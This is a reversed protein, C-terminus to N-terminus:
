SVEEEIEVSVSGGSPTSKVVRRTRRLMARAPLPRDVPIVQAPTEYRLLLELTTAAAARGSEDSLLLVSSRVGRVAARVIEACWDAANARANGGGTVVILTNNAGALSRSERLLTALSVSSRTVPALASLLRWVHAQGSEAHIQVLQAPDGSTCLLGVKRHHGAHLLQVAASAAATVAVELWASENADFNCDLVIWIDGAPEQERERVMLRGHHATAPWHVHRLADSPTRERVTAAPIAGLMSRRVRADSDAHGVPLDIEPLQVVRPYILVPETQPLSINLAFLRFPDGSTLRLPGLQYLGRDGCIASVRWRNEGHPPCGVVRGATYGPVNSGDHVEVWLAAAIGQNTLRFEEELLDGSVLMEGRRVREIALGLALSRVWYYGFLYLAALTVIVMVWIPDPLAIEGVLALALVVLPLRSRLSITANSPLGRNLLRRGALWRRAPALPSPPIDPSTTAIQRM